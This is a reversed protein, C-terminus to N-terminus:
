LGGARDQGGAGARSWPALQGGGSLAGAPVWVQQTCVMEQGWDRQPLQGQRVAATIELSGWQRYTGGLVQM